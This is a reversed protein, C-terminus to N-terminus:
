LGIPLDRASLPNIEPLKKFFLTRQADQHFTQALKAIEPNSSRSVHGYLSAAEPWRDLEELGNAAFLLALPSEQLRSVAALLDAIGWRNSTSARDLGRRLLALGVIQRQTVAKPLDTSELKLRYSKTYDRFYDELRCERAKAMDGASAYAMALEADFSDSNTYQSADELYLVAQRPQGEALAFEALRIEPRVWDFIGSSKAVDYAELLVAKADQLQGQRILDEAMELMAQIDLLRKGPIQPGKKPMGKKQVAPIKLSMRHVHPREAASLPALAACLWLTLIRM